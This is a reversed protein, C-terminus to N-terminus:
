AIFCLNIDIGDLIDFVLFRHFSLDFVKTLSRWFEKILRMRMTKGDFFTMLGEKKTKIETKRGFGKGMRVSDRLKM